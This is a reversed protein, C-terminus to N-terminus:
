GVEPTLGMYPIDEPLLPPRLVLFYVGVGILPLRSLAAMLISSLSWRARLERM